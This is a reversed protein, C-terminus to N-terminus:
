VNGTTSIDTYNTPIHKDDCVISIEEDTKGIFVFENVLNINSVEKVKCISFNPKLIKLEM